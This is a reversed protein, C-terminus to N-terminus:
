LRPPAGGGFRIATGVVQGIVVADEPYRLVRATQGSVPHPHLAINDGEVTCWCCVYSDRTEVFYIPRESVSRWEALPKNKAKDIQLFSGPPILPHMTWDETGIYAYAYETRAFRRLYAFPAPGWRAIMRGIEVSRTPDFKPDMELPVELSIASDLGSVMHSKAVDVLALDAAFNELKVEYWALLQRIDTRYIVSLSYLQQLSPIADNTEIDDILGRPILFDKNAYKEALRASGTEVEESTLGLKERVGGLVQGASHV